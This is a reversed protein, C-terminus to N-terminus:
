PRYAPHSQLGRVATAEDALITFESQLQMERLLTDVRPPVAVLVIQADRAETM